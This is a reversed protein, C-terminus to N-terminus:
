TRNDEDLVEKFKSIVIESCRKFENVYEVLKMEESLEMMNIIIHNMCRSLPFGYGVIEYGKDTEEYADFNLSEKSRVIKFKNVFIEM